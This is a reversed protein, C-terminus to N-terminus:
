PNLPRDKRTAGLDRLLQQFTKNEDLLQRGANELERVSTAPLFFSTPISLLYNKRQEDEFQTFSLHILHFKMGPGDADLTQQQYKTFEDRALLLTEMSYRDMTIGAAAAAASLSGPPTEERDWGKAPKAFSNVAIFVVHRV